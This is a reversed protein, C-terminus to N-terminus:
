KLTSITPLRWLPCHRANLYLPSNRDSQDPPNEIIYESGAQAGALVIADTRAIILNAESVQQQRRPSLSPLGLPHDHDRLPPPGRMGDKPKYFRSVSFSSCPPATFVAFFDGRHARAQLADYVRDRLIDHEAGGGHKPDSDILVPHFGLRSLFTALGDPRDYPGSFLILIDRSSTARAETHRTVRAYEDALGARVDAGPPAPPADAPPPM